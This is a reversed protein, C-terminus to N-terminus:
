DEGRQRRAEVDIRLRALEVGHRAVDARMDEESERLAAAAAASQAIARVRLNRAEIQLQLRIRGLDPHDIHIFADQGTPTTVLPPKPTSALEFTPPPAQPDQVRAIVEHALTALQLSVTMPASLPPRPPPAAPGDVERAPNTSTSLSPKPSAEEAHAPALAPETLTPRAPIGRGHRVSADAFTLDPGPVFETDPVFRDGAATPAALPAGTKASLKLAQSGAGRGSGEHEGAPGAGFTRAPARPRVERLSAAVPLEQADDTAWLGLGEGGEAGAELAGEEQEDNETSGRDEPARADLGLALDRTAPRPSQEVIAGGLVEAFSASDPADDPSRPDREARSFPAEVRM